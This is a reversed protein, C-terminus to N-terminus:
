RDCTHYMLPGGSEAQYVFAGCSMWPMQVWSFHSYSTFPDSQLSIPAEFCRSATGMVKAEQVSMARPMTHACSFVLANPTDVPVSTLKKYLIGGGSTQYVYAGSQAYDNSRSHPVWSYNVLGADTMSPLTVPYFCEQAPVFDLNQEQPMDELTFAYGVCDDAPQYLASEDFARSAAGCCEENQYAAHVDGCSVAEGFSPLAYLHAMPLALSPKMTATLLMLLFIHLKSGLGAAGSIIADSDVNNFNNTTNDTASDDTASNDTTSDDTTSDDTTSDDTTSDDTTSDDTEEVWGQSLLPDYSASATFKPFRFTFIQSNGQMSLSPFGDPMQGQVGDLVVKGTLTLNADGGLFYTNLTGEVLTVESAAGKIKIKLELFEGVENRRCNSGEDGCWKWDPFNINFKVDGVGVSWEEFEPGVFGRSRMIFTDVSINGVTSVPSQFSLKNATVANNVGMMHNEILPLFTFDQNAFTQISHREQGSSGVSNGNADLETLSDLEITVRNPDNQGADTSFMRFKGSQGLIRISVGGATIEPEAAVETDCTHYMLPGNGRTQYVFAGCNNWPMQVWFFDTYATFPESQLSIPAEFCQAATGLVSTESLTMAQPMAHACSFVLAGPTHVPVSTLKKYLVGGGNREDVQYVFAGSPAHENSRSHPVWSYRVLGADIMSPLTVPYFCEQAPVFDLDQEQPMDELTFAYDVCDDAPQYLMGEDFDMDEDGSCQQSQYVADIDGCTLGTTPCLDVDGDPSPQSPLTADCTHYMLPGNSATQYVYAGCDMWPMQVWFFNVYSTFPDSQLSIPAEFCQAATGLATAEAPTMTRPMAHACSFVLADPTDVPVSTLKKYLIGGGSTQYVYAGSSANENSRSHPVWSYNMLGADIMAPLTVPYFCEQEPVFDLNQEQPLDELSFAYNV